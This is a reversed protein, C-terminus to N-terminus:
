RPYEEKERGVGRRRIGPYVGAILLEMAFSFQLYKGNVRQLITNGTM